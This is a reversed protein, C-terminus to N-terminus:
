VLMGKLNRLTYASEFPEGMCEKNEYAFWSQGYYNKQGKKIYAKVPYGETDMDLVVYKYVCENVRSVLISSLDEGGYMEKEDAKETAISFKAQNLM